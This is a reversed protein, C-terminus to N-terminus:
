FCFSPSVAPCRPPLLLSHPLDPLLPSALRLPQWQPQWSSCLSLGGPVGVAVEGLAPAPAGWWHPCLGLRVFKGSQAAPELALCAWRVRVGGPRSDLSVAATPPPQFDCLRNLTSQPQSSIFHLVWPVPRSVTIWGSPARVPLLYVGATRHGIQLIDKLFSPSIVNRRSFFLTFEDSASLSSLFKELTRWNSPHESMSSPIFLM